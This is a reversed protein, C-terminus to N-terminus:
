RRSYIGEGGFGGITNIRIMGIESDAKSSRVEDNLLKIANTFHMQSRTEDGENEWHVSLVLNKLAGFNNTFLPDNDSVAKVHRRKCLAIVSSDELSDADQMTAEPVYYRRYSPDTEGPEYIGIVAETSDDYVATLTKYGITVPMIIKTLRSVYQTSTVGFELDFGLTGDSDKFIQTSVQDYGQVRADDPDADACDIRLRCAESPDTYTCYGEGQDVVNNSFQSADSTGDLYTYWQGALDRATGDVQVGQISLFQRPLTLVGSSNVSINLTVRSGLFRGSNLGRELAEDMLASQGDTDLDPPFAKAAILSTRAPGLTM